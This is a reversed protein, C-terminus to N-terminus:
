DLSELPYAAPKAPRQHPAGRILPRGCQDRKRHTPIDQQLRLRDFDILETLLRRMSNDNGSPLDHPSLNNKRVTEVHAPINKLPTTAAKDRFIGLFFSGFGLM